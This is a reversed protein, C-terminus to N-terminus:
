IGCIRENNDKSSEKLLRQSWVSAHVARGDSSSPDLFGELLAKTSLHSMLTVECCSGQKNM